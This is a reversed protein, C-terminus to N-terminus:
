VAEGPILAYKIGRGRELDFLAQSLDSLPRTATILRGLGMDAETLLRYSEQVDAPSYHFSGLLTVEDYHIRRASFAVTADNALGGFLLVRGGPRVLAPAAAWVEPRGTCEIVADVAQDDSPLEGAVDALHGRVVRHAGLAEALELGALRGGVAIIHPCGMARAVAVHMLGIAGVGIIIVSEPVGLRRWGRVVCSLPELLAAEAFDLHSPKRFLHRAAVRAPLLIYDAYAGLAISEFLRRCHNFLGRRCMGCEECPATPVWMVPDGAQVHEVGPGVAEVWGSAEHGLPGPVPLKAHGRRFTKLDTGCTLATHVRVLVEGPGPEPAPLDRFALSGVSELYAQKM